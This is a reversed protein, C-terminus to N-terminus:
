RRDNRDAYVLGGEQLICSRDCQALSGTRETILLLITDKYNKKINTIVKKETAYDLSSTSDDLIIMDPNGALARAIMLRQRQGGSVTNGSAYCISDYGYDMSEIFDSIEANKAAKEADERSVYDRGLIINELFTGSYVSNNYAGVVAIHKRLEQPDYREISRGNVLVEGATAKEMGAILLALSSKGGSTSGVVALSEGKKLSLSIDSLVKVNEIYELDVNKLEVSEICDILETGGAETEAEMIAELRVVSPKIESISRALNSSIMISMLIQEAYTISMMVNGIATSNERGHYGIMVVIVVIAINMIFMVIPNLTSMITLVRINKKYLDTNKEEFREEEYEETVSAKILRMSHLVRQLRTNVSDVSKQVDMFMSSTKRIYIWVITILAIIFGLFVLGFGSSITFIMFFGGIALLLPKYILDITIKIVSVVKEVDGTLRTIVSGGGMKHVENYRLKTVKDYLDTRLEHGFRLVAINTFVFAFYGSIGLLVTFVLMKIGISYVMDLNGTMIGRNVIDGMLRPLIIESVGQITTFLIAFIYLKHSKFYKGKIKLIGKM